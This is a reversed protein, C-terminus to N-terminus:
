GSASKTNSVGSSATRGSCRRLRAISRTVCSGEVGRERTSSFLKRKAPPSLADVDIQVLINRTLYPLEVQGKLWGRRESDQRQGYLTM